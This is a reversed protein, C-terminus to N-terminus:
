FWSAEGGAASRWREAFETGKRPAYCLVGPMPGLSISMITPHLDLLSNEDTHWPIDQCWVEYRNAIAQNFFMRDGNRTGLVRRVWDLCRSLVGCNNDPLKVLRHKATGAYRDFCVCGKKAVAQISHYAAARNGVTTVTDLQSFMTECGAAWEQVADGPVVQHMLWLGCGEKKGYAGLTTGQLVDIVWWQRKMRGVLENM